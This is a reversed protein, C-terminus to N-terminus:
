LESNDRGTDDVSHTTRLVSNSKRFPLPMGSNNVAWILLSGLTVALLALLSGDYASAMFTIPPISLMVVSTVFDAVGYAKGGAAWAL